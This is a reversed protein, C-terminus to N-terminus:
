PSPSCLMTNSMFTSFLPFPTPLAYPVTHRYSTSGLFNKQLKTKLKKFKFKYTIM